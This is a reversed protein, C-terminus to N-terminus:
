QTLEVELEAPLGFSVFLAEDIFHHIHSIRGRQLELVVISWPLLAGPRDSPVYQAFAPSCGNARLPLLRSGACHRRTAELFAGIDAAGRVWMTFPPMSLGAQEDFLALLEDVDYREFAEVYRVLLRRDAEGDIDRLTETRLEARKLTDRARQLGSNVAAVTMGLAEATEVASWRFADRLVLLARQRPPLTQLVALFSLRLTERAEAIDAADDSRDPAPWIWADRPLREKPEAVFGAPESLDMPLARRKGQRLKDLCVNTAIRYVWARRSAVERARDENRWVRIMTEQVADEAEFVSGMMRYCYGTLESRMAEAAEHVERSQSM